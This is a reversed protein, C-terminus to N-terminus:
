GGYLRLHTSSCSPPSHCKSVAAWPTGSLAPIGQWPECCCCGTSHSAASVWVWPATCPPFHSRGVRSAAGWPSHGARPGAGCCPCPPAPSHGFPLQLHQLTQLVVRILPLQPHKAWLFLLSFRIARWSQRSPLQPRTRILRREQTVLSLVLPFPKLSHWPLNLNFIPKMWPNEEGKGKVM